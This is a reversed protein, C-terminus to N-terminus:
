SSNKNKRYGYLFWTGLAVMFIWYSAAFGVTMSQHVGITLMALTIVLLVVDILKM